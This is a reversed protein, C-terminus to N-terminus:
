EDNGGGLAAELAARACTRWTQKVVFSADRWQREDYEGFIVYLEKAMKEVMDDTITIPQLTAELADALENLLRAADIPDVDAGITARERAEEILEKTM